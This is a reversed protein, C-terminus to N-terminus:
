VAVLADTWRLELEDGLHETPNPDPIQASLKLDEVRVKDFWSGEDRRM